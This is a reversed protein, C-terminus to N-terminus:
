EKKFVYKFFEILLKQEIGTKHKAFEVTEHMLHEKIQELINDPADKAPGISMGTLIAQKLTKNM